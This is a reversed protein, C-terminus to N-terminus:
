SIYGIEKDNIYENYEAYAKDSLDYWSSTSIKDHLYVELYLTPYKEKVNINHTIDYNDRAIQVHHKKKVIRSKELQIDCLKKLTLPKECEELPKYSVSLGYVEKTSEIKYGLQCFCGTVSLHQKLATCNNCNRKM